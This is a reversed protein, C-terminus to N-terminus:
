GLTRTRLSRRCWRSVTESCGRLAAFAVRLAGRRGDPWLRPAGKCGQTQARSSSLPTDRAGGARALCARTLAERTRTSPRMIWGGRRGQARLQGVGPHPHRPPTLCQRKVIGRCRAGRVPGSTSARPPASGGGARTRGHTGVAAKRRQHLIVPRTFGNPHLDAPQCTRPPALRRTRSSTPLTWV